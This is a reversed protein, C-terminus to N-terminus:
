IIIMKQYIFVISAAIMMLSAFDLAIKTKSVKGDEGLWEM